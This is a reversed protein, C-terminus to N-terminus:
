DRRGLFGRRLMERLMQRKLPPRAAEAPPQWWWGDAAMEAAAATLANRIVELEIAGLTTM